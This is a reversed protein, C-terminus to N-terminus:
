QAFVTMFEELQRSDVFKFNLPRVASAVDTASFMRTFDSMCLGIVGVDWLM